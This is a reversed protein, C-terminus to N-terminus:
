SLMGSNTEKIKIWYQKELENLFLLPSFEDTYGYTRKPQRFFDMNIDDVDKYVQMMDSNYFKYQRLLINNSLLKKDYIVAERVRATFADTQFLTLELLCRASKVYFNFYEEEDIFRDAYIIDDAYKQQKKEVGVIYFHCTLGNSRFKEYMKIIDKYRNKAQGVFAIDYIEESESPKAYNKSYFAPYYDIGLVSAEAKDYIYIKDYSKKLLEMDINRAAHVDMLYVVHISKPYMKRLYSVVKTQAMFVAWPQFYLFVVEMDRSIDVKVLLHRYISEGVGLRSYLAAAGKIRFPYKFNIVNECKEAERYMADAPEFGSEWLVYKM